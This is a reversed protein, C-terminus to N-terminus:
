IYWSQTEKTNKFNNHFFMAYHSSLHKLMHKHVWFRPKCSMKLVFCQYKATYEFVPNTVGNKFTARQEASYHCKNHAWFCPQCGWKKADSTWDDVMRTGVQQCPQFIDRRKHINQLLDRKTIMKLRKDLNSLQSRIRTKSEKKMPWHKTEYILGDVEFGDIKLLGSWM